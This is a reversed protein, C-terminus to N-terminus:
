RAMPQRTQGGARGISSCPRQRASLGQRGAELVKNWITGPPGAIHGVAWCICAIIICKEPKRVRCTRMALSAGAVFFFFSHEGRVELIEYRQFEKTKEFCRRLAEEAHDLVTNSVEVRFGSIRALLVHTM